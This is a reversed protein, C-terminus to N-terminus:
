QVAVICLERTRGGLVAEVVDGARKGSLADGLPSGPTIVVLAGGALALRKGGGVPAIFYRTAKGDAEDEVDVIASLDVPEGPAFARPTLQKLEAVARALEAARASQGTALYGAELARTDKDNEPRMEEHAAADRAAHAAQLMTALAREEDALLQAIVAHKDITTRAAM